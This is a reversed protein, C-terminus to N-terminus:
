RPMEEIARAKLRYEKRKYYGNVLCTIVTCIIGTLAAWQELTFFGMVSTMISWLYATPTSYKEFIPM